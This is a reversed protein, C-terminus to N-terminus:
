ARRQRLWDRVLDDPDLERVSVYPETPRRRYATIRENVEAVAERVRQESKLTRVRERLHEADRALKLSPPLTVEGLDERRMMEKLWWNEDYPEGRGPIPKGAGPLNDFEGNERAARIQAEILSEFRHSYSM